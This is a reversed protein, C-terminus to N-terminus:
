QQSHEHYWSVMHEQFMDGTLFELIDVPKGDVQICTKFRDKDWPDPNTYPLRALTVEVSNGPYHVFEESTQDETTQDEPADELVDSAKRKKLSRGGDKQTTGFSWEDAALNFEDLARGMDAEEAHMDMSRQSRTRQSIRHLMDDVLRQAEDKTMITKPM